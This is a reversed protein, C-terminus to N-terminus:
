LKEPRLLAWLLYGVLAVAVVVVGVYEWGLGSSRQVPGSTPGLRGVAVLVTRIAASAMTSVVTGIM